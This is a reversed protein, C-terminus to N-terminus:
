PPLTEPDIAARPNGLMAVSCAAQFEARDYLARVLIRPQVNAYTRVLQKLREYKASRYHENRHMGNDFLVLLGLGHSTSTDWWCAHWALVHNLENAARSCASDVAQVWGRQLSGSAPDGGIYLTGDFIIGNKM